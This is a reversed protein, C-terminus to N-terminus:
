QRMGMGGARFRWLRGLRARRCGFDSLAVRGGAGMLANEPKLDGHVVRQCTHLYDLAQTTTPTPPHPRPLSTLAKPGGPPARPSLTTLGPVWGDRVALVCALKCTRVGGWVWACTRSAFPFLLLHACVCVCVCVVGWMCAGWVRARCMDRFYLRAVEEPIRHGREAPPLLPPLTPTPAPLAAPAPTLRCAAPPHPGEARAAGRKAASQQSSM